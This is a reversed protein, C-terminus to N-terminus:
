HQLCAILTRENQKSIQKNMEEYNTRNNSYLEMMETVFPIAVMWFLFLLPRNPWVNQKRWMEHSIM